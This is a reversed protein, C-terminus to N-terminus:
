MWADLSPNPNVMPTKIERTCPYCDSLDMFFKDLDIWKVDNYFILFVPHNKKQLWRQNKIENQEIQKIHEEARPNRYSEPKVQIGICNEVVIDVGYHREEKKTAWRVNLYRKELEIMIELEKQHAKFTKEVFLEELYDKCKESSLKAYRSLMKSLKDFSLGRKSLSKEVYLRFEQETEPMTVRFLESLFFGLFSPQNYRCKNM